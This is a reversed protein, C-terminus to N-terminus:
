IYLKDIIELTEAYEIRYYNKFSRSVGMAIIEYEYHQMDHIFLWNRVAKVLRKVKNSSFSNSLYFMQSGKKNLLKVEVFRILNGKRAIVDIESNRTFFNRQIVQFGLERLYESVIKEGIKGLDRTNM